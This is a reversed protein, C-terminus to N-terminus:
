KNMKTISKCEAINSREMQAKEKQLILYGNMLAQAVIVKALQELREIDKKPIRDIWALAARIESATLPKRNKIKKTSSIMYRKGSSVPLSLM